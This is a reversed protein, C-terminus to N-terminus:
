SGAAALLRMQRLERGAAAVLEYLEELIRSRPATQLLYDGVTQLPFSIMRPLQLAPTHTHSVHTHTAPLAPQGDLTGRASVEHRPGMIVPRARTACNGVRDYSACPPVAASLRREPGAAANM